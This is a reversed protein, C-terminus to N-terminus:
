QCPGSETDQADRRKRDCMWRLFDDLMITAEAVPMLSRTHIGSQLAEIALNIIEVPGIERTTGEGAEAQCEADRVRLFKRASEMLEAYSITTPM